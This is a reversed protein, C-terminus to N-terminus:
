NKKKKEEKVNETAEEYWMKEIKKTKRLYFFLYLGALSAFISAMVWFAATSGERERKINLRIESTDSVWDRGDYVAVKIYYAGPNEASVNWFLSTQKQLNTALAKWHKGDGSVLVTCNIIEGDQDNMKWHITYNDFVQNLKSPNLVEVSPLQNFYSLHPENMLFNLANFIMECNSLIENGQPNYQDFFSGNWPKGYTGLAFSKIRYRAYTFDVWTGTLKTNNIESGLPFGTLIKLEDLIASYEEKTDYPLSSNYAWPTIIAELGSFLNIAFNFNHQSLFDRIARTENESFPFYGQFDDDDKIKSSNTQNWFVPYNRNLNVGGPRDEGIFADSDKNEKIISAAGLSSNWVYMREYEDNLTGDNDDDIPNLNKIQEPYWHLISLGDPNLMPIIYLEKKSLLQEYQGNIAGFVIKDIFFLSNEVTILENAQHQSVILFETKATTVSENSLRVCWIDKQNWTKGISFVEVFNPFTENLQFLKVTEETYNHYPGLNEGWFVVDESNIFGPAGNLEEWM